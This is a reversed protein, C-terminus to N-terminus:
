EERNADPRRQPRLVRLTPDDFENGVPQAKMQSARAIVDPLQVELHHGPCATAAFSGHHGIDGPVLALEDLLISLLEALADTQATSPEEIEFNGELAIGIHGLPDYNTNTDGVFGIVRGEAVVGNADIYFHYPIDPWAAKTRGDALLADSQSFNQLSRLKQALSIDPRQRVATHHITIRTPTHREMASSPERAQWDTRTMVELAMAQHSLFLMVLLMSFRIARCYGQTQM